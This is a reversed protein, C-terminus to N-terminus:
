IDTRVIRKRLERTLKEINEIIDIISKDTINHTTSNYVEESTSYTVGNEDTYTDNTDLYMKTM